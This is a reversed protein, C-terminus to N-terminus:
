GFNRLYEDVKLADLHYHCLRQDGGFLVPVWEGYEEDLAPNGDVDIMEISCDTGAMHARLAAAMDDCLHCYHRGYIVFRIERKNLGCRFTSRMPAAVCWCRSL